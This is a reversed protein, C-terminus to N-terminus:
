GCPSTLGQWVESTQPPLFGRRVMVGLKNLFCVGIESGGKEERLRQTPSKATDDILDTPILGSSEPGEGTERGLSSQPTPGCDGPEGCCLVVGVVDDLAGRNDDNM